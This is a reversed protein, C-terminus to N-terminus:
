EGEMLLLDIITEAAEVREQLSPGPDVPEPLPDPPEPTNGAALWQQYEEWHRNGPSPDLFSLTSGDPLQCSISRSEIGDFNQVSLKYKM